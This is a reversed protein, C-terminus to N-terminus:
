EPEEDESDASEPKSDSNEPKSSQTSPQARHTSSASNKNTAVTSPAPTTSQKPGAAKASTLPTKGVTLYKHMKELRKPGLSRIAKLDDVSKFAGYSKRMQLIKEATAPGIGPVQQLQRSDALNINIPHVPPKKTAAALHAVSSALFAIAALRIAFRTFVTVPHQSHPYTPQSM